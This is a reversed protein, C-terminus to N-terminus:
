RRLASMPDVRTARRGALWCAAGAVTALVGAVAAFTLPDGSTVGFLLSSLLKTLAASAILGVGIGLVPTRMGQVITQRLVDGPAAGLAMRVGIERTREAVAYHVLGFIGVAALALALLAFITLLWTQLRRLASFNGLQADATSTTVITIGPYAQKVLLQITGALAAPSGETRVLLDARGNPSPVYPGYFQPISQRDLGQRLLDGVVGVIQFWYTKQDPDFCFKKGVPNEHPFYRKVFAENVVVPEATALREREALTGTTVLNYTAIIRQGADEPTLYRGQRLPVRLAPFFGPTVQGGALEGTTIQRGPIAIAENGPGSLFLDDSFGVAEVGGVQRLRAMMEGLQANRVRARGIQAAQGDRREAESFPPENPFELRLSLVNVPDFGPDVANLRDLSRLLLGAGTLLVLALSCEALVLLNRHRKIRTRGTASSGEKLTEAADTGSLRLAPALGFVLGALISAGLAFLLVRGDVAIESLRPVYGAAVVGLISVGWKALLIGLGGGVLALMLSETVLQRALRTRGGGLARRVAFEQQRSAGRALLLNAVNLCAVLLVLSVAGLMIWLTSQLGAGAISELVPLVTAAYGAFDEDNSPHDAALRRGIRALDSRADDFSAGPALRGVGIWRRAWSPARETRERDWRWYTTNPTWIETLRDPFFFGEPMVGIVEFVRTGGKNPDQIGLSRGVVNPAGGFWRQWFGHSIVAVPLRAEADAPTIGRGQAPRAGLVEFLNGSVLANRSRGRDGGPESADLAVRGATYFALDDFSRAASWDSITAFGTAERPLGRKVDDTWILALRGADHYPLPRLIVANVVSFMTTTVGIGLAITAAAMLTFSPNRRLARLGYRLDRLGSEVHAEWAGGRVEEKAAQRSGLAVRAAHEAQERSLGARQYETISEELYPELEADLERSKKAPRILARLGDRLARFM